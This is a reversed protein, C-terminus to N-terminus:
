YLPASASRVLQQMLHGSGSQTAPQGKDLRIGSHSASVASPCKRSAAAKDPDVLLMGSSQERTQGCSRNHSPEHMKFVRDSGTEMPATSRNMLSYAKWWSATFAAGAGGLPNVTATIPEPGPPM